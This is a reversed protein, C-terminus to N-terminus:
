RAQLRHKSKVAHRSEKGSEVPIAKISAMDSVISSSSSGRARATCVRAAKGLEVVLAFWPPHHIRQRLHQQQHGAGGDGRAVIEVVDGGPSVVMEVQQLLRRVEM